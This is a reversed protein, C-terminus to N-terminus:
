YKLIIICCKITISTTITINLIKITYRQNGWLKFTVDMAFDWDNEINSEM